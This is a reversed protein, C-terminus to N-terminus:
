NSSNNAPVKCIDIRPVSPGENVVIAYNGDTSFTADFRTQKVGSKTINCTLCEAKAPLDSLRKSYIHKVYPANKENAAYFITDTEDNWHLLELVVFEGSTLATQKGTEVSVLTLHAYSDNVEPQFQPAIYIFHSGNKNFTPSKFFDVWGTKSNM